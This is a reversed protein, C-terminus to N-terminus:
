MDTNRYLYVRDYKAAYCVRIDVFTDDGNLQARRLASRLAGYLEVVTTRIDDSLELHVEGRYEM